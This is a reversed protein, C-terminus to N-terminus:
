VKNIGPDPPPVMTAKNAVTDSPPPPTSGSVQPASPAPAPQSAPQPPAIYKGFTLVEHARGDIMQTSVRAYDSGYQKNFHDLTGNARDSKYNQIARYAAEQSKTMDKLAMGAPVAYQQEVAKHEGHTTTWSGEGSPAIRADQMAKLFANGHLSDLAEKRRQHSEPDHSPQPGGSATLNTNAIGDDDGNGGPGGDGGPGGSKGIAYGMAAGVANTEGSVSKSFGRSMTKSGSSMLSSGGGIQSVDLGTGIGAAIMGGAMETVGGVADGVGKGIQGGISAGVGTFSGALTGALQGAGSALSSAANGALQAANGMTESTTKTLSGATKLITDGGSGTIEKFMSTLPIIAAIMVIGEIGRSGTSAVIIIGYVLAHLSQLFISGTLERLWAWFMQKGKQGFNFAIIFLPAVIILAAIVLGRIIYVYNIYIELIFYTFKVVINGILIGGAAIRQLTKSGVLTSFIDVFQYNLILLLKIAGWSFSMFFLSILLDKVSDAFSAREFANATSLQRKFIMRVVVFFVLSVSIAAFILFMNLLYQEYSKSFTGMFFAKSGRVGKNFILEEMSYINVFGSVGDLLKQFFQTVSSEMGEIHYIDAQNAYTIGEAYYISAQLFLHQWTIYTTDLTDDGYRNAIQNKTGDEMEEDYSCGKYGKKIKWVYSGSKSSLADALDVGNGYNPNYLQEYYNVQGANKDLISCKYTYGNDNSTNSYSVSYNMNQSNTFNHGNEIVCLGYATSILEKTSTFSKGGNIFYLANNFDGGLVDAIEYARNIEASNADLSTDAPFTLPTPYYEAESGETNDFNYYGNEELNTNIGNYSSSSSVGNLAVIPYITGGSGVLSVSTEGANDNSIRVLTYYESDEGVEEGSASRATLDYLNLREDEGDVIQLNKPLFQSIRGMEIAQGTYFVQTKFSNSADDILCVIAANQHAADAKQSAFFLIGMALFFSFYIVKNRIYKKISM